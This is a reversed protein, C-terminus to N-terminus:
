EVDKLSLKHKMLMEQVKLMANQSEHQNESKSLALLKKIKLVIKENM